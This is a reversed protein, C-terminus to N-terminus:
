SPGSVCVLRPRGVLSYAAPPSFLFFLFLQCHTGSTLSLRVPVCSAMRRRSVSSVAAPLSSPPSPTCHLPFLVQHCYLLFPQPAGGRGGPVLPLELPPRSRRSSSAATATTQPSSTAPSSSRHLPLSPSSTQPTLHFPALERTLDLTGKIPRLPRARHHGAHARSPNGSRARPWLPGPKTHPHGTTSPHRLLCSPAAPHRSFLPPATSLCLHRATVKRREKTPDHCPSPCPIPPPCHPSAPVSEPPLPRAPSAM